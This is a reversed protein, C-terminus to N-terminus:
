PLVTRIDPHEVDDSLPVARRIRAARRVLDPHVEVVVFFGPREVVPSDHGNGSPDGVGRLGIADSMFYVAQELIGVALRM